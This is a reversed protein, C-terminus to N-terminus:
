GVKKLGVPETKLYSQLLAELKSAAVPLLAPNARLLKGLRHLDPSNDLLMEMKDLANREMPPTLNLPPMDVPSWAPVDSPCELLDPSAIKFFLPAPDWVDRLFGESTRMEYRLVENGEGVPVQGIGSAHLIGKRNFLELRKDYVIASYRDNRKGILVSGTCIGEWPRYSKYHDVKGPDVEGQSGLHIRRAIGKRHIALLRRRIDDPTGLPVDLATDIRTVNHAVTGIIGLITGLLQTGRLVQLAAGGFYARDVRNKYNTALFITPNMTPASPYTLMIKGHGMDQPHWAWDLLMGKLDPLFSNDPNCTAAFTDCFVGHPSMGPLTFITM